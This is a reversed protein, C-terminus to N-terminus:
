QVRFRIDVPKTSCDKRGAKPLVTHLNDGELIRALKKKLIIANIKIVGASSARFGLNPILFVPGLSAMKKIIKPNSRASIDPKKDAVM